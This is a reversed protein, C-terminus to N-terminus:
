SFPISALQSWTGDVYSGTADPTLKWWDSFSSGQFMVTGDTLLLPLGVDVPPQHAIPRLTGAHAAASLALMLSALWFRAIQMELGRGDFNVDGFEQLHAARVAIM